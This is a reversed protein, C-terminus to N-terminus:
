TTRSSIDREAEAPKQQAAKPPSHPPRGGTSWKPECSSLSVTARSHRSPWLTIESATVSGYQPASTALTRQEATSM